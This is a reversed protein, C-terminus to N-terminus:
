FKYDREQWFNCENEQLNRVMRLPYDMVMTRASAANYQMWRTDKVANRRPGMNPDGTYFFNIFSGFFYDAFALEEATPMGCAYVWYFAYPIDGAHCAINSCLPNSSLCSMSSAPPHSMYYKYVETNSNAAGETAFLGALMERLPCTYQYSGVAAMLNKRGDLTDSCNSVPCFNDLTCPYMDYVEEGTEADGLYADLVAEYGSKNLCNEIKVVPDETSGDHSMSGIIMPVRNIAGAEWAEFPRMPLMDEGKGILPYYLVMDEHKFDPQAMMVGYALCGAYLVDQLDTERLCQYTAASTSLGGCGAGSVAVSWYEKAAVSLNFSRYVNANSMMVARHFLGESAPSAIHYGISSGGASEGMITVSNPDGGFAAINDRVWQLALRQDGVGYNGRNNEADEEFDTALFGLIGLRYNITVAVVGSLALATADYENAAGLLFDGGHIWVVVPYGNPHRLRPARKNPAVINLFLCDEASDSPIDYCSFASICNVPATRADFVGNFKRAPRAKEFRKSIHGYRVGKWSRVGGTLMGMVKGQQTTVLLRNNKFWNFWTFYDSWSWSTGSSALVSSSSDIDSDKFSSPLQEFGYSKRQPAPSRMASMFKMLQDPNGRQFDELTVPSNDSTAAIRGVHGVMFFIALSLRVSM